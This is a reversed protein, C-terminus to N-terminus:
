PPGRLLLPLYARALDIDLTADLTSDASFRGGGEDALWVGSLDLATSAVPAIPNFGIRVLNGQTIGNEAGLRVVATDTLRGSANIIARTPTIEVWTGYPGKFDAAGKVSILQLYNRNFRLDFEVGYVPRVTAGAVSVDVEFPQGVRAPPASPFTLSVVVGAQPSAEAALGVDEVALGAMEVPRGVANFGGPLPYNAVATAISVDNSSLDWTLCQYDAGAGSGSGTLSVVPIPPHWNKWDQNAGPDYQGVRAFIRLAARSWQGSDLSAGVGYENVGSTGEDGNTYWPVDAESTAWHTAILNGSGDLEVLEVRDVRLLTRPGAYLVFPPSADLRRPGSGTYNGGSVSYAYFRGNEFGTSIRQLTHNGGAEVESMGLSYFYEGWQVKVEYSEPGICDTGKLACIIEGLNSILDGAPIGGLDLSNWSEKQIWSIIMGYAQKNNTTETWQLAFDLTRPIGAAVSFWASTFSHAAAHSAQIQYGAYVSTDAIQLRYTGDSDTTKTDLPTSNGAGYLRVEVGSYPRGLDNVVTGGVVGKTTTPMQLIPSATEGTQVSFDKETPEYGAHVAELTHAGSVVKTFTFVGIADSVATRGADLTVTVGQLPTAGTAGAYVTGHVEGWRNIYLPVPAAPTIAVQYPDTVLRTATIVQTASSYGPATLVAVMTTTMAAGQTADLPVGLFNGVMDSETIVGHYGVDPADLTVKGGYLGWAMSRDDPAYTEDMAVVQMDVSHAPLVVGLTVTVANNALTTEPTDAGASVRIPLLSTYELDPLNFTRVVTTSSFPPLSAIVAPPIPTDSITETFTVVINAAEVWGGNAITATITADQTIRAVTPLVTVRVDDLVLDARTMDNAAADALTSIVFLPRPPYTNSIDNYILMAAGDPGVAIVPDSCAETYAV